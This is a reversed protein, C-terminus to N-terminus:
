YNYDIKFSAGRLAENFIEQLEGSTMAEDDEFERTVLTERGGERIRIELFDM